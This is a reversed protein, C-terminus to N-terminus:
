SKPQKTKPPWPKGGKGNMQLEDILDDIPKRRPPPAHQRGPQDRSRWGPLATRIARLARAEPIAAEVAWAIVEGLRQAGYQEALQRLTSEQASTLRALSYTKQYLILPDPDNSERL